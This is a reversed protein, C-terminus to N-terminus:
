PSRRAHSLRFDLPHDYAWNIARGASDANFRPRREIMERCSRIPTCSPIKLIDVKNSGSRIPANSSGLRITMAGSVRAREQQSATGRGIM